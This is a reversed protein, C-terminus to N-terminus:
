EKLEALDRKLYNLKFKVGLVSLPEDAGAVRSELRKIEEELERIKEGDERPDKLSGCKVCVEWGNSEVRENSPDIWEHECAARFRERAKM